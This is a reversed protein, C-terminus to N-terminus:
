FAGGHFARRVQRALTEQTLGLDRGYPLLTIQFEDQDEEISTHANRVGEHDKLAQQIERVVPIMVDNDKGRLEVEIDDREGMM